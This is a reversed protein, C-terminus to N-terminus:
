WTHLKTGGSKRKGVSWPMAEEAVLSLLGFGGHFRCHGRDLRPFGPLCYVLSPHHLMPPQSKLEGTPCSDTFQLLSGSNQYMKLGLCKVISERM